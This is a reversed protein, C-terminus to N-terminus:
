AKCPRDFRIYSADRKGPFAMKLQRQDKSRDSQDRSTPANTRSKLRYGPVNRDATHRHDRGLRFVFLGRAQVRPNECESVVCQNCDGRWRDSRANVLPPNAVARTGNARCTLQAM